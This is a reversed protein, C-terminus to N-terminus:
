VFMFLHQWFTALVKASGQTLKRFLDNLRLRRLIFKVAVKAKIAKGSSRCSRNGCAKPMQKWEKKVNRVGNLELWTEFLDAHHTYFRVLNKNKTTLIFIGETRSFASLDDAQFLFGPFTKTFMASTLHVVGSDSFVKGTGPEDRFFKEGFTFL